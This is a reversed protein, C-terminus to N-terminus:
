QREEWYEYNKHKCAIMDMDGRDCGVALKKDPDIIAQLCNNCGHPESIQESLAQKYKNSIKRM